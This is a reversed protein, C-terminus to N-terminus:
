SLILIMAPNPHMRVSLGVLCWGDVACTHRVSSSDLSVIRRRSRHTAAGAAATLSNPPQNSPSLAPSSTKPPAAHRSHDDQRDMSQSIFLATPRSDVRVEQLELTGNSRAAPLRGHGLEQPDDTGGHM